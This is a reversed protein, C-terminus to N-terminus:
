KVRITVADTNSGGVHLQLEVTIADNDSTWGASPEPVTVGWSCESSTLLVIAACFCITLRKMVNEGPSLLCVSVITVEQWNEVM